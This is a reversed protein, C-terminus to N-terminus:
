ATIRVRRGKTLDVVVGRKPRNSREAPQSTTPDGGVRRQQPRQGEGFAAGGVGVLLQGRAFTIKDFSSLSHTFKTYFYTFFQGPIQNLHRNSLYAIYSM